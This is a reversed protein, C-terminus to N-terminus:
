QSSRGAEESALIDLAALHMGGLLEHEVIDKPFPVNYKAIFCDTLESM